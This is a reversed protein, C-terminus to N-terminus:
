EIKSVHYHSILWSGDVFQLVATLHVPIVVGDPRTFDVDVYSILADDSLQRHELIRFAPSLGVPQKDYYTVVGPKGITRTKDFGQFLANETFYSAVLEPRHERIGNAWADLVETLIRVQATSDITSM